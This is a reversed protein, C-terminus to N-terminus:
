SIDQVVKQVAYGDPLLATFIEDFEIKIVIPDDTARYFDTYKIRGTLFHPSLAYNIAEIISTKGTTNDGIFISLEKSNLTLNKVGRFNSITLEKIKM